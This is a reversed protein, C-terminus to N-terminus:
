QATRAIRAIEDPERTESGPEPPETHDSPDWDPARDLRRGALDHGNLWAEIEEQSWSDEQVWAEEIEESRATDVADTWVDELHTLTALREEVDQREETVRQRRHSIGTAVRHGIPSDIALALLHKCPMDRYRHDECGCYGTDPLVTYTNGSSSEFEIVLPDSEVTRYEPDIQEARELRDVVESEM